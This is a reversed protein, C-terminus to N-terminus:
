CGGSSSDHHLTSIDIGSSHESGQELRASSAQDSIAFFLFIMGFSSLKFMGNLLITSYTAAVATTLYSNRKEAEKRVLRWLNSLLLLMLCLGIIGTHLIMSLYLNDSGALPNAANKGNQILGFGMFLNLLGASRFMDLARSWIAFRDEFSSADTILGTSLGGSGTQFYAYLAIILGLGLWLYPLWKTRNRHHMFTIVCSSIVGCGTGIINTRAGSAWSLFLSLLLLPIAVIINAKRRCMAVALSGVFCFFLACAAPEVFLSFVRVHGLSSWVMVKFSGDSSATPVIPSNTLYQAIGLGGCPVVLAILIGILLRDSIRIPTSLAIVGILPLLYYANYALLIDTCEIGLNFYQHVAALTLYAVFLLAVKAVPQRSIRGRLLFAASFALLLGVKLVAPTVPTEGGTVLMQLQYIAADVLIFPAITLVALRILAFPFSHGESFAIMNGQSALRATRQGDQSNVFYDGRIMSGDSIM